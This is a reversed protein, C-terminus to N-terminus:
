YHKNWSAMSVKRVWEYDICKRKFSSSITSNEIIQDLRTGGTCLHLIKFTELAIPLTERLTRQAGYTLMDYTLGTTQM